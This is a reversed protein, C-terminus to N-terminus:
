GKGRSTRRASYGAAPQHRPDPGSKSTCSPSAACAIGTNNAFRAAPAPTRLLSHPSRNTWAAPLPGRMTKPAKRLNPTPGPVATKGDYIMLRVDARSDHAAPLTGPEDAFEAANLERNSANMHTWACDGIVTHVKASKEVRLLVGHGASGDRLTCPLRMWRLRDIAPSFRAMVWRRFDDFAEANEEIGFLRSEPMAVPNMQKADEVGIALLGGESNAFACVAEIM